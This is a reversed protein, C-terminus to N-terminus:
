KTLHPKLVSEITAIANDVDEGFPDPRPGPLLFNVTRRERRIAYYEAKTEDSVDPDFAVLYANIDAVLEKQLVFLPDFKDKIARGWVVEAELMEAQLDTRTTQVKTWRNYYATTMVHSRVQQPTLTAHDDPLVQEDTLIDPRRVDRLADRFSYACRLLRRALEYETQGKLQRNWTTLGSVAVLMGVFAACALVVDKLMTIAEGPSMASM